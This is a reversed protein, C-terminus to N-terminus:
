SQIDKLQAMFWALHIIVVTDPSKPEEFQLPLLFEHPLDVLYRSVPSFFYGFLQIM